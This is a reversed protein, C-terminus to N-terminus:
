EITFEVSQRIIRGDASVGQIVVLYEGVVDSAYFELSHTNEKSVKIDPDWYLTTRLDPTRDSVGGQSYDPYFTEVQKTFSSFSVFLANDPLRAGARDGKKSVLNIIGGYYNSGRIYLSNVVDIYEIDSPSLQLFEDINLVPTYDLLLLPPYYVLKGLEGSVQFYKKGRSSRVMVNPVLEFFFEDLNPLPIYDSTLYRFDPEGYFALGSSGHNEDPGLTDDASFAQIIQRNIMLEQVLDRNETWWSSEFVAMKPFEDSLDDSFEEEINIRINMDKGPVATILVDQLESHNLITSRFEGNRDSFIEYCDPKDGLLTLYIETYPIGRGDETNVIEGSISLGRSEPYYLGEKFIIPIGPEYEPSSFDAAFNCGKRAVSLSYGVPSGDPDECQINLTIKERKTYTKKDPLCHIASEPVSKINFLETHSDRGSQDSIVGAQLDPDTYGSQYPNIIILPVHGFGSVPYNRMWKTYARLTYTGSTVSDPIIVQGSAGRHGLEFKGQVVRTNLSNLIELYLVKSWQNESLLQPSTYYARFHVSEGSTYVNRDTIVTIQERYRESEISEVPFSTQGTVTGPMRFLILLLIIHIIIMKM